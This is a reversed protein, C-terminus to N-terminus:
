EGWLDMGGEQGGLMTAEARGYGVHGDGRDFGTFLEFRKHTVESM